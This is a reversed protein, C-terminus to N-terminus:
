IATRESDKKESEPLDLLKRIAKQIDPDSSHYAAILAQDDLQTAPSEEGLLESVSCGLAQSLLRLTGESPTNRASEIFSIAQQSVGSIAALQSQTLKKQKRLRKLNDPVPM